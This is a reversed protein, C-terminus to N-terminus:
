QDFRINYNLIEEGPKRSFQYMFKDMVQGVRHAEEPEYRAAILDTIIQVGDPRKLSYPDTLQMKDFADGKLRGLLKIGRRDPEM